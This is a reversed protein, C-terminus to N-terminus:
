TLINDSMDDPHFVNKNVFYKQLRSGRWLGWNNRIWMGLGHHCNLRFDDLSLSDTIYRKDEPSIIADLSDIAEDMDKPIYIGDIRDVLYLYDRQSSVKEQAASSVCLLFAVIILTTTKNTMILLVKIENQKKL